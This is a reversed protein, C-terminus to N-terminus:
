VVIKYPLHSLMLTGLYCAGPTPVKFKLPNQLNQGTQTTFTLALLHFWCSGQVRFQLGSCKADRSGRGVACLKRLRIGARFECRLGLIGLGISGVGQKVRCFWCTPPVPVTGAQLRAITKAGLM